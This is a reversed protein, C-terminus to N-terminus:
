HASRHPERGEVQDIYRAPDKEFASRCGASCFYYTAGAYEVKEKATAPDVSMWCVPDRVLKAGEDPRHAHTRLMEIGGTTVFRWALVAIVILFAIDLFTTYNWSRQTEFITVYGPM